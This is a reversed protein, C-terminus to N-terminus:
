QPDSTSNASSAPAPPTAPAPDPTSADKKPAATDTKTAPQETSEGSSTQEAVCYVPLGRNLYRLVKVLAAREDGKATKIEEVLAKIDQELQQPTADVGNGDTMAFYTSSHVLGPNSPDQDNRLWYLYSNAEGFHVAALSQGSMIDMLMEKAGPLHWKGRPALSQCRANAADWSSARGAQVVTLTESGMTVTHKLSDDIPRHRVPEGARALILVLGLMSM